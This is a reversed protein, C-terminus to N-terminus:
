RGFGTEKWQRILKALAQGRHSIKNKQEPPLEAATVGLEPVYFHPDYGFGQSGRPEEIIGGEWTGRAHLVRDGHPDYVILECVFRASSLIAPADGNVNAKVNGSDALKKLEQILKRNNREDNAPEGAYRASYVGPEGGLLDVELGSDDALVVTGLANAITKAKKLANEYFTDGDEVVDPLHDFHKLSRVEIGLEHFYRSFERVKGPNGSAVVIVDHNKNTKESSSAM